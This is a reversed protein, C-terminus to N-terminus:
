AQQLALEPRLLWTAHIHPEWKDIHALVSRTVELPSLERQRYARLLDRATLDHLQM